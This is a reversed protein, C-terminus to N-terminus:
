NEEEVPEGASRFDLLPYPSGVIASMLLAQDQTSLETSAWELTLGVAGSVVAGSADPEASNGRSTVLAMLLGLLASLALVSASVAVWVNYFSLNLGSGTLGQILFVTGLLGGGVLGAAIASFVIARPESARLVVRSWASLAALGGLFAASVLFVGQAWGLGAAEFSFLTGSGTTNLAELIGSLLGGLLLLFALLVGVLGPSVEPKQQRLTDAILGLLGLVPVAALVVFAIWFINQRGGSTQTWAGFSFVGYMGILAQVTSYRTIRRGCAQAVIDCAIGMVPIALMYVAPARLFWSVGAEFRLALGAANTQSVQGLLVHATTSGFTLIWIPAAVLMSWSFFPVRSLSMGVPRHSLVTTAVCVAGLSLAVMMSGMSLMGLRAGELKSGGVGGDLPISVLFILGSVLWAWLSLAAARPFAIAASGVQLPVLCIALGLLLGIAGMLVMAVLASNWLPDSLDLAGGSSLATLGGVALAAASIAMLLLSSLIFTRGIAQHEGTGIVRELATPVTGRATASNDSTTRTDTLTM